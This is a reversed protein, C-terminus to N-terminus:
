PMRERHFTAKGEEDKCQFGAPQGCRPCDLRKTAASADLISAKLNAVDYLFYNGNNMRAFRLATM